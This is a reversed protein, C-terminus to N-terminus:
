AEEGLKPALHFVLSSATGVKYTICMPTAENIQLSIQPSLACKLMSTLYRTGFGVPSPLAGEGSLEMERGETNELLQTMEGMENKAKVHFGDENLFLSLTDGFAGVEKFLAAVDATKAEITAAYELNPIELADVVLEMFPIKCVSKKKLKENVHSVILTEDTSKLSLVDSAGVPALVKALITLPVGLSQAFPVKLVACDAAALTYKVFGVHASDMGSIVLGEKSIQLQAEPLFDKLGEIATRFLASDTPQFEM